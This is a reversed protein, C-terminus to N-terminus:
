RRPARYQPQGLALVELNKEDVPVLLETGGHRAIEFLVRGPQVLDGPEVNRTLVTGAVQARIVTKALQAEASAVRVRAAAEDARGEELSYVALRAREAATRAAIEAQLAQEMEEHAIARQKSLVRRREVERSAQALRAQAERLAAQAQPRTSEHLATLASSAERLMAELDDARLVALIDGSQVMDGERVRREVVVGTVSSGIQARSVTAVRGTAVVAQVLPREVIEYSALIPGRIKQVSLWVLVCAVLLSVIVPWFLRRSM